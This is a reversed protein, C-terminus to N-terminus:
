ISGVWPSAAEMRDSPVCLIAGPGRGLRLVDARPCPADALNIPLDFERAARM